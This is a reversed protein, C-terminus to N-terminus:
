IREEVEVSVDVYVGGTVRQVKCYKNLVVAGVPISDIVSAYVISSMEQESLENIKEVESIEYFTYRYVKFPLLFGFDEVSQKLEYCEYPSTPTKPVIGFMSLRTITKKAGHTKVREVDAFYVRKNYYVKGYAYGKAEVPLREDGYEVYGDIIVDGVNVIDGYNKQATGSEVIVRTIVARKTALVMSTDIDVINNPLEQKICVKIHTGNREVSAFSVGNLSLICEEIENLNISSDIMGRKIGRETLINLVSENLTADIQLGDVSAISINTVFNPYILFMIVVIVVGLALGIRSGARLTTPLVGKVGIIKYYYCLNNLLAIIKDCHKSDIFFEVGDNKIMVDYVRYTKSIVSVGRIASKGEIFIKTRGFRSVLRDVTGDYDKRSRKKKREVKDNFKENDFCASEDDCDREKNKIKERMKYRAKKDISSHHNKQNKINKVYELQINKNLRSM